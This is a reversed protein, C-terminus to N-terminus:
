FRFNKHCQLCASQLKVLTLASAATKKKQALDALRKGVNELELAYNRFSNDDKYNELRPLQRATEIIKGALKGVEDFDPEDLSEQVPIVLVTRVLEIFSKEMVAMLDGVEVEEATGSEPLAPTLLLIAAAAAPLWKLRFKRYFM